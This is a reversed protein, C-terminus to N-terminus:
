RKISKVYYREIINLFESAFNNAEGSMTRVQNLYFNYFIV